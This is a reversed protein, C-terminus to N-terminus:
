TPRGASNKLVRTESGSVLSIFNDGEKIPPHGIRREQNVMKLDRIKYIYTDKDVYVWADALTKTGGTQDPYQCVHYIDPGDIMVEGTITGGFVDFEWFKMKREMNDWARIGYNRQSNDFKRADIYDHTKVAFINKTLETEVIIEEHFEAGGKWQGKTEWKGGVFNAYVKYTEEKTM